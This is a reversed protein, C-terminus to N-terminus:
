AIDYPTLVRAVLQNPPALATFGPPLPISLNEQLHLKFAFAPLNLLIALSWMAM